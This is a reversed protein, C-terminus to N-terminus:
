GMVAYSARPSALFVISDAIERAEAIRGLKTLGVVFGVEELREDVRHDRV